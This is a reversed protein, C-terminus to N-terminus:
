FVVCTPVYTPKYTISDGTLRKDGDGLRIDQGHDSSTQLGWDHFSNMLGFCVSRFLRLDRTRSGFARKGMM